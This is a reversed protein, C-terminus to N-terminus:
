PFEASPMERTGYLKFGWFVRFTWPAITTTALWCTCTIAPRCRAITLRM